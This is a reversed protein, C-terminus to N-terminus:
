DYSGRSLGPLNLPITQRYDLVSMKELTRFAMPDQEIGAARLGKKHTKWLDRLPAKNASLLTNFEIDTIVYPRVRAPALRPGQVRLRIQEIEDCWHDKGKAKSLFGNLSEVLTKSLYDHLAPRRFKDAVRASLFLEDAETAFGEIPKKIALTTKSLPVSMRLDVAWDRGDTPPMTLYVYDVLRGDRIQQVKDAAFAAGIDRVPCTQVFPHRAGPGTTAIDCTQSVIALYGTDCISTSAALLEDDRGEFVESRAVDLCSAASIWAGLDGQVLHGQRWSELARAVPEPWEKPILDDITM